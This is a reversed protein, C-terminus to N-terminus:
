GCKYQAQYSLLSAWILDNYNGQFDQTALSWLRQETSVLLGVRRSIRHIYIKYGLLSYM